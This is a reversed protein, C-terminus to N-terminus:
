RRRRVMAAVGGLSILALSTPEPIGAPGIDIAVGALSMNPGAANFDFFYTTTDAPLTWLSLLETFTFDSSTITSSDPSIAPNIGDNLLISATDIPAGFSFWRLQLAVLIGDPGVELFDDAVISVSFDNVFSPNYLSDSSTVFTGPTNATIASIASNYNAVEPSADTMPPAPPSPDFGFDDWEVYLTDGAERTWGNAAAPDVFASAQGAIVSSVLTAVAATYLRSTKM